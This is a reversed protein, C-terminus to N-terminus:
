RGILRYVTEGLAPVNIPKRIWSVDARGVLAMGTKPMPYGTVLLMKVDEQVTHLAEHLELANMEPMVLDSIVLDIRGPSQDLLALAESGTEADLVEYSFAELIDKFAERVYVNDEVLLIRLRPGKSCRDGVSIIVDKYKLCTSAPTGDSRGECKSLVGLGSLIAKM